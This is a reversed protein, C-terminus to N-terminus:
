AGPGREGWKEPSIPVGAPCAPGRPAAGRPRSFGRGGTPYARGSGGPGGAGGPPGIPEPGFRSGRGPGPPFSWAAPALRRRDLGPGGISVPSGGRGWTSPWMWKGSLLFDTDDH